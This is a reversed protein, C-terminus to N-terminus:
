VTIVWSMTAWPSGSVWRWAEATPAADRGTLERLANVAARHYPNLVGEEARAILDRYAALEDETIERSRVLFDFRQMEPWPTAHAVKMFVSFDQRLYTADIRVALEPTSNRYGEQFSPLPEGPIPVAGTLM